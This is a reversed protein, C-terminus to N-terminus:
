QKEEQLIRKKRKKNISAGQEVKFFTWQHFNKESDWQM